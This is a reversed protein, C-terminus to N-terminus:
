PNFAISMNPYHVAPGRTPKAQPQSPIGPDNAVIVSISIYTTIIMLQVLSSNSDAPYGPFFRPLITIMIYYFETLSISMVM